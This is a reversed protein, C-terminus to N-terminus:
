DINLKPISFTFINGKDSRSNVWIKGHHSQVLNKTIALGLGLGPVRERKSSDQTRYYPEFIKVRDKESIIPAEDEIEVVVDNEEERKRIIIQAGPPSFKSANSLLNFLVQELRDKDGNIHSGPKQLELKLKQKKSDFIVHLQETAENIAKDILMPMPKITLEGIQMRAFDLLENVRRNMSLAGKEINSALRNRITDPMTTIEGQLMEASSLIATLPTKLEHAISHLFETKLKNQGELEYRIAIESEYLRANELEIAIRSSVTQLLREDQTSYPQRSEKEGIIMIGVLKNETLIPVFLEAKIKDFDELKKSSLAQLQPDIDIEYRRLIRNNLQLWLVIPSYPEMTFQSTVKGVEAKVEFDNTTTPLLLHVTSAQIAKSILGTLSSVLANLDGIKHTEQSFVALEQLFDVREGFFWRDVLHQIKSWLQPLALTIVVILILYGWFPIDIGFGKLILFILGIYILSIVAITILYAVGKRIVIHMDILRFKLLSISASITFIINGLIASPPVALGFISAVDLVGFILFASVGAVVYLYSNRETYASSSRYGRIFYVLGLINFSYLFMAFLKFLTGGVPMNGYKDTGIYDIILKTPSLIIIIIVILYAFYLLWKNIRRTRLMAFHLFFVSSLVLICIFIRDWILATSKSSTRVVFTFFGW